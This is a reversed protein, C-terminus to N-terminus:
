SRRGGRHQASEQMAIGYLHCPVLLLNIRGCNQQLLSISCVQVGLVLQWLCCWGSKRSGIPWGSLLEM